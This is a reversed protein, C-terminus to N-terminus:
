VFNSSFQDIFAWSIPRFRFKLVLGPGYSQVKGMKLGLGSRGLILEYIFKSSISLISGPFSIKVYILPWLEISIQRFKGM